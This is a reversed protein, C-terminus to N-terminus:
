KADLELANIQEKSLSNTALIIPANKSAAM